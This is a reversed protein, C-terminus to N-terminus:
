TVDTFASVALRNLQWLPSPPPSMLVQQPGTQVYSHTRVRLGHCMGHSAHTFGQAGHALTDTHFRECRALPVDEECGPASEDHRTQARQLQKRMSLPLEVDCKRTRLM